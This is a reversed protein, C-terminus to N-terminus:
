LMDSRKRIWWELALLAVILFLMVPKNWLDTEQKKDIIVIEYNLLNRLEDPQDAALYRGGSLQAIRQLLNRNQATHILEVSYAEVSFKKEDRGLIVGNWEAEGFITYDGVPLAGNVSEYRGNGASNMQLAVQVERSRITVRFAADSVPKFQDDYVQGSIVIKEGSQYVTKNTMVLVPRTDDSLTLWRVSQEFFRSYAPNNKGLGLPTFFMKWFGYFAVSLSKQKKEKHSIILPIDNHLKLTQPAKSM